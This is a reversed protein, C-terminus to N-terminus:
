KHLKWNSTRLLKVWIIPIHSKLTALCFLLQVFTNPSCPRSIRCRIYTFVRGCFFLVFLTYQCGCFYENSHWLKEFFLQPLLQIIGEWVLFFWISTFLITLNQEAICIELFSIKKLPNRLRPQNRICSGKLCPVLLLFSCTESWETLM